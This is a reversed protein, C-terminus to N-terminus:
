FPAFFFFECMITFDICENNCESDLIHLYMPKWVIVHVHEIDIIQKFFLYLYLYYVM